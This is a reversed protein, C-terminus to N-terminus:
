KLDDGEWMTKLEEKIEKRLGEIKMDLEEKNKELKRIKLEALLLGAGLGVIGIVFYIKM